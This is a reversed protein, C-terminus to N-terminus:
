SLFLWLFRTMQDNWIEIHNFSFIKLNKYVQFPPFQWSNKRFKNSKFLHIKRLHSTLVMNLHYFSHWRGIIAQRVSWFKIIDLQKLCVFPNIHLSISIYSFFEGKKNDCSDDHGNEGRWIRRESHLSAYDDSDRWRKHELLVCWGWWHIM